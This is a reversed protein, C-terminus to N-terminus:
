KERDFNDKDFLWVLDDKTFSTLQGGHKNQITIFDSDETELVLFTGGGLEVYNVPAVWENCDCTYTDNMLSTNRNFGHPALPHKSCENM